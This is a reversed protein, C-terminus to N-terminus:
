ADDVKELVESPIYEAPGAVAVPTAEINGMEVATNGGTSKSLSAEWKDYRGTKLFAINCGAVAFWLAAEVFAVIAFAKEPCHDYRTEYYNDDDYILTFPDCWSANKRAVLFFVGVFLSLLAAIISIVQMSILAARSQRCCWLVQHLVLAVISIIFSVWWIWAIFMALISLVQAAIMLGDDYPRIM